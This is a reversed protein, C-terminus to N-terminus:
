NYKIRTLEESWMANATIQLATHLIISIIFMQFQISARVDRQSLITSFITLNSESYCNNKAIDNENKLIWLYYAYYVFGNM